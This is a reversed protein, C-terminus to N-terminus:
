CKRRQVVAYHRLCVKYDFVEVFEVTEGDQKEIEEKIFSEVAKLYGQQIKEHGMEKLGAASIDHWETPGAWNRWCFGAKDLSFNNEQGRADQVIMQRDEFEQNTRRYASPNEEVSPLNILIEFPKEKVHVAPNFHFYSFTANQPGSASANTPLRTTEM